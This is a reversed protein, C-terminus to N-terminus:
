KFSHGNLFVELLEESFDRVPNRQDGDTFSLRNFLDPLGHRGPVPYKALIARLLERLFVLLKRFVELPMHNAVQLCIFDFVNSWKDAKNM